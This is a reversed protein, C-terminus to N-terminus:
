KIQELQLLDKFYHDNTIGQGYAYADKEENQAYTKIYKNTILGAVLACAGTLALKFLFVNNGDQPNLQAFLDPLHQNTETLISAALGLAISSFAPIHRVIRLIRKARENSAHFIEHALGEIAEYVLEKDTYENGDNDLRFNVCVLREKADWFGFDNSRKQAPLDPELSESTPFIKITKITGPQVETDKLLDLLKQQNIILRYGYKDFGDVTIIQPLELM